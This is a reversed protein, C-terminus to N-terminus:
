SRDKVAEYLRAILGHRMAEDFRDGYHPSALSTRYVPEESLDIVLEDGAERVNFIVSLVTEDSGEAQWSLM